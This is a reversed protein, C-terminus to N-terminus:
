TFIIGFSDERGDDASGLVDGNEDTNLAFILEYTILSLMLSTDKLDRICNLVTNDLAPIFHLLDPIVGELDLESDGWILM